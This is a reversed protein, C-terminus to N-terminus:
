LSKAAALALALIEDGPRAWLDTNFIEVEVPGTYGAAQVARWLRDIEVCGEGPLARGTLVGAPLPTTWDAIQFSAIRDGARAIDAYVRDDWWVHYTDVVVGVVSAPHPAAM